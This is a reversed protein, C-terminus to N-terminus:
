DDTALGLGQWMAGVETKRKDYGRNQLETTFAKQTGPQEGEQSCWQQWAAFLDSSRVTFHKGTLCRRELFQAM